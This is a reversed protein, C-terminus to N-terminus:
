QHDRVLLSICSFEEPYGAEPNVRRSDEVLFAWLFYFIFMCPLSVGDVMKQTDQQSQLSIWLPDALFSIESHLPIWLYCFVWTHPKEGVIYQQGLTVVM